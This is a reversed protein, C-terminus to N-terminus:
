RSTITSSGGYPDRFVLSTVSGSGDLNVGAFSYFHGAYLKGVSPVNNEVHIGVIDRM